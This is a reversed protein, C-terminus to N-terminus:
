QTMLNLTRFAIITLPQKKPNWLLGLLMFILTQYKISSINLCPHAFYVSFNVANLQESLLKSHYEIKKAPLTELNSLLEATEVRGHSEVLGVVLDINQARLKQAAQLMTYTKGVGACSGFFIKLRGQRKKEEDRQIESLLEDPNPRAERM